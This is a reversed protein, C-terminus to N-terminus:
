SFGRRKEKREQFEITNKYPQSSAPVASFAGASGGFHKEYANGYRSTSLVM